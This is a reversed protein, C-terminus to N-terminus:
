KQFLKVYEKTGSRSLRTARIILLRQMRHESINYSNGVEQKIPKDRQTCNKSRNLIAQRMKHKEKKRKKRERKKNKPPPLITGTTTTLNSSPMIGSTKKKKVKRKRNM